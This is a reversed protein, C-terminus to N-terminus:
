IQPCHADALWHSEKTDALEQYSLKFWAHYPMYQVTESLKHTLKLQSQKPLLQATGQVALDKDQRFGWAMALTDILSYNHKYCAFWLSM